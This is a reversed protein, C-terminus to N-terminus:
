LNWYHYINTIGIAKFNTKQYLSCAPHNDSQTVVQIEKFNAKAAHEIAKNILETGLGRGRAKEDVALLGLEALDDNVKGITTFGIIQDSETAILIEFALKGNIANLIWRKYLRSYENERFNPDIYFRSYKGSKLALNILSDKSHIAKDFRTIVNKYNKVEIKNIQDQSFIIKKDVLKIWECPIIEKSFIYVLQYPLSASIFKESNFDERNKVFLRGVEYGFFDSDWKLREINEM